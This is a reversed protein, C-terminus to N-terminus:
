PIKIFKRTILEKENTLRVFYTGSSLTTIDISNKNKTSIVIIGLENIIDIQYDSQVAGSIYISNTAPNPFISIVNERIEKIASTVPTFTGKRFKITSSGNDQWVVYVSGNSVAVDTQAMSGIFVTDYSVPFGSSINNTFLIPIHDNGGYNQKWVVAVANGYRDLRPYNQTAGVPAYNYLNEVTNLTENTLTYKSLYNKASGSASSSFVSYLTDSIIVGDPGTAPCVNIYWNNQDINYGNSFTNGFDNSLGIWTDRINSINTRYLMAVDNGSNTIGGPCCDCVTGGAQGSAKKDISFSTGMDSSKTVVWRADGFAADFKMFAVIPNGNEDITLTPFRSISDAIFDVRVPLSFTTGGDTSSVIYIHNTDSAEPTRKMVVYVTDGKSAIDPGMWSATAVTMWSPNLKVPATFSSGNWKSFFVSADSARGWIMMPNGQADIVVRPHLNGFSNQAVSVVPSWEITNQAYNIIGM